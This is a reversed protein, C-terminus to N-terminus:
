ESFTRAVAEVEGLAAVVVEEGAGPKVGKLSLYRRWARGGPRSHFLGLIHRTVAHLRTGKEMERRIYPLLALVVEERSPVAHGDGFLRRDAQALLYPDQYAARGIMVGDFAQIQEEAGDLSVIGGNLVIELGPFDAKVRAAVDYRLPPVSRNEEPSLGNLWAKRAHVVFTRCGAATVTAVFSHLHEYSDQDDVGIRCKVTVPVQAAARMAAVCDAVLEPEHMLCAGFRGQKVRPSPCGVNLNIEDYGYDEGLRACRALDDPESGGLQLALPKEQASFELWRKADGRLLAGTTVMESYLWAHRSLLRLFYRCHRDTWDLMPAICLRHASKPIARPIAETLKSSLM